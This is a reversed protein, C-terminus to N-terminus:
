FIKIKVSFLNRKENILRSYGFGFRKEGFYDLGIMYDNMEFDTSFGGTLWLQRKVVPVEFPVPVSVKVISKITKKEIMFNDFELKLLKGWTLAKWEFRYNSDIISDHYQNMPVHRYITDYVTDSHSKLKKNLNAILIEYTDVPAPETIIIPRQYELVSDVKQKATYLDWYQQKQNSIITDKSMLQYKCERKTSKVKIWQMAVLLLLAVILITKVKNM